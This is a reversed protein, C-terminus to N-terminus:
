DLRHRVLDAFMAAEDFDHTVVLTPIGIESLRHDLERLSRLRTSADLAALPEDLLLVRPEGAIARALAVRQREGGSLESPRTEAVDAVDFRELLELALGRRVSRPVRRLAFAVNRWASMQPFLAYDQFLYGCHRHEAPLNLGCRSDLWTEGDLTVLGDVERRLGAIARLLTTKGSGSPGVIALRRGSEVDIDVELAFERLRTAFQATLGTM